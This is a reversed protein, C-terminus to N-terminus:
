RIVTVNTTNVDPAKNAIYCGNRATEYAIMIDGTQELAAYRDRAEALCDVIRQQRASEMAIAAWVVLAIVTAVGTVIWIPTRDYKWMHKIFDIM